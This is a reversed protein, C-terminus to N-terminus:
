NAMVTVKSVGASRESTAYTTEKVQCPFVLCM